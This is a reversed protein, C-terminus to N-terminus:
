LIFFPSKTEFEEVKKIWGTKSLDTDNLYTITSVRYFNSTINFFVLVIVILISSFALFTKFTQREIEGYNM